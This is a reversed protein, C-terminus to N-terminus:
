NPLKQICFKFLLLGNSNFKDFMNCKYQSYYFYNKLKATDLPLPVKRSGLQGDDM